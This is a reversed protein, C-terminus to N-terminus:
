QKIPQCVPCYYVNGGLYAERKFYGGCGPCPSELTKSSCITRYSGTQGFLDRETDRGGADAMARMTDVTSRYLREKEDQMLDLLKTRPNIRANWLMDQLVGNGLGPVRQETALFAKASYKQPCGDMLAMFYDRTFGPDLPTHAYSVTYGHPLGSQEDGQKYLFMAGWMQVSCTVASGDTFELLLQHRPPLKKGPEHYRPPASLLLVEDELHVRLTANYLDSGTVTKGLLIGDYTKPDGTYWAFGHPTHAAEARKVTKGILAENVQKVYHYNEPLEMM